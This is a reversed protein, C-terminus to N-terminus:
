GNKEGFYDLKSAIAVKAALKRSNKGKNKISESDADEEVGLIDYYNVTFGCVQSYRLLLRVEM